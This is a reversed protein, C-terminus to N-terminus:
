VVWGVKYQLTEVIKLIDVEVMLADFHKM